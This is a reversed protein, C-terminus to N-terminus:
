WLMLGSDSVWSAKDHQEGSVSFFIQGSKQTNRSYRGQTVAHCPIVVRDKYYPQEENNGPVHEDSFLEFVRGLVFWLPPRPLTVHVPVIAQCLVRKRRFKLNVPLLKLINM